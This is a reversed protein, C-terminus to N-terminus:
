AVAKEADLQNFYGAVGTEKSKSIFKGLIILLTGKIQGNQGLPDQLVKITWIKPM